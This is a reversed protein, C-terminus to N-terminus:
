SLQVYCWSQENDSLSRMMVHAVDAAAATGYKLSAM